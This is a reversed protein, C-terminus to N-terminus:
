WTRTVTVPASSTYLEGVARVELRAAREGQEPRLGAVFYARQCTAGLFRRTGDPLLRHV